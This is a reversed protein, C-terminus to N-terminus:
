NDFELMKYLIFDVLIIKIGSILCRGHGKIKKKEQNGSANKRDDDRDAFNGSGRICKCHCNNRQVGQKADQFAFSFFIAIGDNKNQM